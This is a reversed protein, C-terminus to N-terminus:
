DVMIGGSVAPDAFTPPPPEADFQLSKFLIPRGLRGSALRERARAYDADWRRMFGVQLRVGAAAAADIAAASVTSRRGAAPESPRASSRRIRAASRGLWVPIAVVVALVVLLVVAIPGRLTSPLRRM